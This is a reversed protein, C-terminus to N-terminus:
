PRQAGGGATAKPWGQSRSRARDRRLRLDPRLFPEGTSCLFQVPSQLLYSCRNRSSLTAIFATDSELQPLLKSSVSCITHDISRLRSVSRPIWHRNFGSYQKSSASRFGDQCRDYTVARVSRVYSRL